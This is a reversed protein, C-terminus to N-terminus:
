CLDFGTMGDHTEAVLKSDESIGGQEIGTSVAAVLLKCM